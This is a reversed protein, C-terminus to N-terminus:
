FCPDSLGVALGVLKPPEVVVALPPVYAHELELQEVAAVAVVVVVVALLRQEAATDSTDVTWLDVVETETVGAWDVQADHEMSIAQEDLRCGVVSQEYQELEVNWKV